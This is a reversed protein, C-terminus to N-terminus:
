VHECLQHKLCRIGDVDHVIYMYVQVDNYVSASRNFVHPGWDYIYTVQEQIQDITVVM